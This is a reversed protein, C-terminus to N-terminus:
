LGDDAGDDVRRGVLLSTGDGTRRIELLELGYRSFREGLREPTVIRFGREAFGARRVQEPDGVGLVLRGDGALVRALERMGEDVDTWFTITNLSMAADFSGDGLPLNEVFAHEVQLRGQLRPVIFRRRAKALLEKSTETAFVQGREGVARLLFPLSLGGGFGVEAVRQGPRLDLASVGALITRANVGNLLLGTWPALRGSPRSLQDILFGPLPVRAPYRRL